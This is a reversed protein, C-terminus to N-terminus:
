NQTGRPFVIARQIPSTRVKNGFELCLGQAAVVDKKIASGGWTCGNLRVRAPAIGKRDFWGGSALCDDGDLMTISYLSNRTKVLLLDGPRLSAKFIQRLSEAGDVLDSLLYGFREMNKSGAM